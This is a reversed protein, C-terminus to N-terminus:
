SEPMEDGGTRIAYIVAQVKMVVPWLPHGTGARGWFAETPLDAFRGAGTNVVHVRTTGRPPRGGEDASSFYKLYAQTTTLLRRASPEAAAAELLGVPGSGDVYLNAAGGAVVSLAVYGNEQGVDVLIGHVDPHDPHRPIPGRQASELAMLRMASYLDRDSPANKGRNNKAFM